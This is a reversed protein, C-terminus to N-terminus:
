KYKHKQRWQELYNEVQKKGEVMRPVDVSMGTLADLWEGPLDYVNWPAVFPGGLEDNIQRALWIATLM